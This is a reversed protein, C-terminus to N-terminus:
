KISERRDAYPDLIYSTVAKVRLPVVTESKPNTIDSNEADVYVELSNIGDILQQRKGNIDFYTLDALIKTCEIEKERISITERSTHITIPIHPLRGKYTIYMITDLPTDRGSIKEIIRFYTSQIDLTGRDIGISDQISSNVAIGKDYRMLTYDISTITKDDSFNRDLIKQSFENIERDGNREILIFEIPFNTSDYYTLFEIDIKKLKLVTFHARGVVVRKRAGDDIAHSEWTAASDYQLDGLFTPVTVNYDAKFDKILIQEINKKKSESDAGPHEESLGPNATNINSYLIIGAIIATLSRVFRGM